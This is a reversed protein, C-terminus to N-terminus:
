VVRKVNQGGKSPRHKLDSPEIAKAMAKLAKIGKQEKVYNERVELM